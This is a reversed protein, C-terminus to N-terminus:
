GRRAALSEMLQEMALQVWTLRGDDPNLTAAVNRLERVVRPTGIDVLADLAAMWTPDHIDDLAQVLFRVTSELQFQGVIRVLATRAEADRAQWFADILVPAVEPPMEALELFAQEHGIGGLRAVQGAVFARYDGEDM